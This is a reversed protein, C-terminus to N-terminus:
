RPWNSLCVARGVSLCRLWKFPCFSLVNAAIICRRFCQPYVHFTELQAFVGDYAERLTTHSVSLSAHTCIFLATCVNVAVFISVPHLAATHKFDTQNLWALFLSPMLSSLFGTADNVFGM